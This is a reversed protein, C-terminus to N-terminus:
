VVVQVQTLVPTYIDVAEAPTRLTVVLAYRARRTSRGLQKRERWWGTVPYM